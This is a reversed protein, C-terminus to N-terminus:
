GLTRRQLPVAPPASPSDKVVRPRAVTGEIIKPDPLAQARARARELRAGLDVHVQTVTTKKGHGTRDARDAVIAILTKLAVPEADPQQANELHDAIMREATMKNKVALEYFEDLEQRWSEDVSNRYEQILNRFGPDSLLVTIRATSYGSKDAVQHPRLGSAFLRAVRHHSDMIRAITPAKHRPQQLRALDERTLERIEGITKKEHVKGRRLM